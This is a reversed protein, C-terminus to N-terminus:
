MIFTPCNYPVNNGLNNKKQLELMNILLSQSAFIKSLTPVDKIGLSPVENREGVSFEAVKLVKSPLLDSNESTYHGFILRYKQQQEYAKTEKKKKIYPEDLLTVTDTNLLALKYHDNDIIPTYRVHWRFCCKNISTDMDRFQLRHIMRVPEISEDQFLFIYETIYGTNIRLIECFLNKCLTVKENQLIIKINNYPPVQKTNLLEYIYVNFVLQSNGRFNNSSFDVEEIKLLPIGVGNEDNLLRPDFKKLNKFIDFAQVSPFIAAGLDGFIQALPMHREATFHLFESVSKDTTKEIRLRDKGLVNRKLCAIIGM